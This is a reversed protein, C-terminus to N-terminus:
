DILSKFEYVKFRKLTFCYWSELLFVRKLFVSGLFAISSPVPVLFLKQNDPHTEQNRAAPKGM